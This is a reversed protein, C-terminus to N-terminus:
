AQVQEPTLVTVDGLEAEIRAATDIPSAGEDLLVGIEAVMGSPSFSEQAFDPELFVISAGAMSADFSVIGVVEVDVPTANVLVIASDGVGLEAAEATGEELVVEDASEPARGAILSDTDTQETFGFALPPAQALNAPQGDAGIVIASGAFIPFASNVGDVAAVDDARASSIPLNSDQFPSDSDVPEGRVTLDTSSTGSSIDMFTQGLVDRFALTGSLFAIGLMVSLATLLFRGLYARIGRLTVQLM